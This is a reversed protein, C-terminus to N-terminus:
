GRIRDGTQAAGLDRCSPLWPYFAAQQTAPLEARVRPEAHQSQLFEVAQAAITLESFGLDGSFSAFTHRLTPPTVDELRALACFRGLV